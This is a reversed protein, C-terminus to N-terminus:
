QDVLECEGPNPENIITKDWQFAKQGTIGWFDDSGWLLPKGGTQDVLQACVRHTGDHNCKFDGYRDGEGPCVDVAIVTAAAFCLLLATSM